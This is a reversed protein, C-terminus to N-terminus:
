KEVKGDHTASSPHDLYITYHIEHGSRTRERSDIIRIERKDFKGTLTGWGAGNWTATTKGDWSVTKIVDRRWLTASDEIHLFLVKPDDVAAKLKAELSEVDDSATIVGDIKEILSRNAPFLVERKADAPMDNVARVGMWAFGAVGLIVLLTFCGCGMLLTKM